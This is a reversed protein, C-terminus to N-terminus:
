MPTCLGALKTIIDIKVLFLKARLCNKTANM